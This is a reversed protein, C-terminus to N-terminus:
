TAHQGNARANPARSGCAAPCLGAWGTPEGGDLCCGRLVSTAGFCCSLLVWAAGLCWGLLVWATDM